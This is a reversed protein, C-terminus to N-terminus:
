SEYSIERVSMPLRCGIANNLRLVKGGARNIVAHLVISVSAILLVNADPLGCLCNVCPRSIAFFIDWPPNSSGDERYQTVM